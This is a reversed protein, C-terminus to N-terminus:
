PATDDIAEWAGLMVSWGANQAKEIITLKPSIFTERVRGNIRKSARPPKPDNAGL